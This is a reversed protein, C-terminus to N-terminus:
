MSKNSKKALDDIKNNLEESKEEQKTQREETNKNIINMNKKIKKQKNEINDITEKHKDQNSKLEEHQKQNKLNKKDQEDLKRNIEDVKSRYEEKVEEFMSFMLQKLEEIDAKAYAAQKTVRSDMEQALAKLKNETFEMEKRKAELYFQTRIGYIGMEGSDDLKNPM